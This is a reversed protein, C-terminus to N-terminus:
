DGRRGAASADTRLYEALKGILRAANDLGQATEGLEGALLQERPGGPRQGADSEPGPVTTGRYGVPSGGAPAYYGIFDSAPADASGTAAGGRTFFQVRSLQTENSGGNRTVLLRYRRYATANAFTFDKTEHRHAFREGSRSDLTTWTSGDHSGQLDWARPDRDPFDNASTLRYGVVAAPQRLTFDLEPTDDHALWKNHAKRLLNSAVEGMMEFEDSAEVDTVTDTIDLLEDVTTPAPGGSGAPGGPGGPEADAARVTVSAANGRRDSWSVREVPAGGDDLLLRLEGAPRWDGDRGEETSFRHLPAGATGEPYAWRDALTGRFEGMAGDPARYHGHFGSLDVRLGIAAEAGDATRWGLHAPVARDGRDLHLLLRPASQWATTGPARRETSFAFVSRRSARAELARRAGGSDQAPDVTVATLRLIGEEDAPCRITLINDGPTLVGEPVSLVTEQSVDRGEGGSAGYAAPVALREAVLAGNLLVDMPVSAGLTTVTVVAEFSKEERGTSFDLKIYGGAGLALHSPAIGCRHHGVVANSLRAPTTSFDAFVPEM